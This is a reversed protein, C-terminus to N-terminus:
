WDTVVTSSSRGALAAAVEYRVVQPPADGRDLVVYVWHGDPSFVPVSPACQRAVLQSTARDVRPEGSVPDIAVPALRLQWLYQGPPRALYALVLTGDPATALAPFREEELSEPTGAPAPTTLRGVAEIATADRDLRLWWLHRGADSTAVGPTRPVTIAAIIRAGLRPDDPWTLDSIVLTGPTPMTAPWPLHRARRPGDPRVARSGPGDDLDLRHLRGDGTAFLVRAAPGPFWCPRSYPVIDLPIHELVEGDPVRFRLLGSEQPACEDAQGRWRAWRGVMQSQGRSDRWPSSAADFLYDDRPLSISVLCGIGADLLRHELTRLVSARMLHYRPAAPFRHGEPDPELRGRGLGIALATLALAALAVFRRLVTASAMLIFEV